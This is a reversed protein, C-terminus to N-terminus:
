VQMLQLIYIRYIILADDRKYIFTKDTFISLVKNKNPPNRWNCKVEVLLGECWINYFFIQPTKIFPLFDDRLFSQPSKKTKPINPINVPVPYSTCLFFWFLIIIPNILKTISLPYSLVYSM